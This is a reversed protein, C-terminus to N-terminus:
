DCVKDSAFVLELFSVLRVLNHERHNEIHKLLEFLCVQM